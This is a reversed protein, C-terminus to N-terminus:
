LSSSNRTAQLYDYRSRVSCVKSYDFRDERRAFELIEQDSANIPLFQLVRVIDWGHQRLTEVTKPSINMDALFKM